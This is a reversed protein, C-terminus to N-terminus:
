SEPQAEQMGFDDFIRNRHKGGEVLDGPADGMQLDGDVLRHLEARELHRGPNAIGTWGGLRRVGRGEDLDVLHLQRALHLADEGAPHEGFAGAKVRDLV